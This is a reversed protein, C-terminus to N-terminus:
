GACPGSCMLRCGWPCLRRLGTVVHGRSWACPPPAKAPGMPVPHGRGRCGPSGSCSTSTCRYVDQGEGTVASFLHKGPLLLLHPCSSHVGHPILVTHTRHQLTTWGCSDKHLRGKARSGLGTSVATGVPAMQSWSHAPPRATRVTSVTEGKRGAKEGEM